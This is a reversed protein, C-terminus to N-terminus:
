PFCLVTKISDFADREWPSRHRVLAPAGVRVAASRREDSAGGTNDPACVSPHADRRSCCIASRWDVLCTKVVLWVDRGGHLLSSFQREARRDETSRRRHAVRALACIHASFNPGFARKQKKIKNSRRKAWQRAVQVAGSQSAIAPEVKWESETRPERWRGGSVDERRETQWFIRERAYQNMTGRSARNM